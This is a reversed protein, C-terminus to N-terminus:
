DKLYERFKERLKVIKPSIVVQCYAKDQNMEYYKHHYEEAEYFVDLPQVETVVPDSYVKEEELKKIFLEIETKQEETTYFIASRYQTGVDAGQRNLTTPDHTTFFVSLLIDLTVEIPDYEVKVGEAHGTRGSCVAEYTPNPVHGGTYGSVVGQVGRLRRFVAETCWFCGGAFVITQINM